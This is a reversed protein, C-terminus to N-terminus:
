SSIYNLDKQINMTKLIISNIIKVDFKGSCIRFSQEGMEHVLDPNKLIWMLKEELDKVDQVNVLLGNVGDIVTERCGVSNTTIIARGMAMAELISHPVGERHYSPLVMVSAQRLYPRVDDAKGHYIIDDNEIFCELENTDITTPNDDIGGVVHFSTNPYHKRVKHAAQCYERIGKVKLLRALFVFSIKEPLKELEFEDMNVGSGFIQVCQHNRVLKMRLFEEQDDPNQFFVNTAKQLSSRYLPYIIKKIIRSKFSIDSFVYGAGPIMAFIRRCGLNYAALIGYINPKLNYTFVIDPSVKKIHNKYKKYLNVDSLPNLSTRLYEIKNYTIGIKVIEGAYEDDPGVAYVEFGENVLSKLMDYRFKFLTFTDNAIVLIKV